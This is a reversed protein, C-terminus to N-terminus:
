PASRTDAKKQESHAFRALLRQEETNLGAFKLRCGEETGEPSNEVAARYSLTEGNVDISLLVGSGQTVTDSQKEPKFTCVKNSLMILTGPLERIESENDPTTLMITSRINLNAQNKDRVVSSSHRIYWMNRPYNVMRVYQSEFHYHADEITFDVALNANEQDLIQHKITENEPPIVGLFFDSNAVVKSTFALKQKTETDSFIIKIAQDVPLIRSTGITDSGTDYGLGLKSRISDFSQVEQTLAEESVKSYQYHHAVKNMFKNFRGRNTVTELHSKINFRRLFQKLSGIESQTLGRSFLHRNFLLEQYYRSIYAIFVSMPIFIAIAIILYQLLPNDGGKYDVLDAQSILLFQAYQNM